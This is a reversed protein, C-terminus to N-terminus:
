LISGVRKPRRVAWGGILDRVGCSAQCARQALMGGLARAFRRRWLQRQRDHRRWLRRGCPAAAAMFWGAAAAAPAASVVALTAATAAALPRVASIAASVPGTPGLGPTPSYPGGPPYGGGAPNGGGPPPGGPPYTPTTILLLADMQTTIAPPAASASPPTPPQGFAVFTTQGANVTVTVNQATVLAAGEEVSVWSDRAQSVIATLITGRVGIVCSPTRIQYDPKPLLGTSFRAVGKVVSVAVASAAPNPDFVFRDLVVESVPGISLQTRDEFVVRSASANATNITENQFVDIGARLVSRARRRWRAPSATSSRPPRASRSIRGPPQPWLWASRSFRWRSIRWQSNGGGFHTM